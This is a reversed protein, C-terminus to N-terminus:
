VEEAVDITCIYTPYVAGVWNRETSHVSPQSGLFWPLALIAPSSRSSPRRPYSNLIARVHKETEYPMTWIGAVMQQLHIPGPHNRGPTVRAKPIAEIQVPITRM